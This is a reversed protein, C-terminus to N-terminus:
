SQLSWSYNNRVTLSGGGYRKSGRNISLIRWIIMVLVRTM